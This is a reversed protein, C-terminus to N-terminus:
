KGVGVTRRRQVRITEHVISGIIPLSATPDARNYIVPNLAGGAHVITTVMNDALGQNRLKAAPTLYGLDASDTSLGPIHKNGIGHRSATDAVMSICSGVNATSGVGQGGFGGAMPVHYVRYRQPYIWQGLVNCEKVDESMCNRWATQLAQMQPNVGLLTTLYTLGSAVIPGEYRYHMTNMVRQGYMLGIFNVQMIAGNNITYAM